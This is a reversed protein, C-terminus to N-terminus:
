CGYSRDGSKTGPMHIFAQWRSLLLIRYYTHCFTGMVEDMVAVMALAHLVTSKLLLVGGNSIFVRNSRLPYSM